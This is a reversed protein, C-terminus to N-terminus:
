CMKSLKQLDQSDGAAYQLCVETLLRCLQNAKSRAQKRAPHGETGRTSYSQSRRSKSDNLTEALDVAKAVTAELVRSINGDLNKQAQALASQLSSYGQDELGTQIQGAVRDDDIVRKLKIFKYVAFSAGALILTIVTVIITTLAMVSCAGAQSASVNIVTTLLGAAANLCAPRYSIDKTFFMNLRALIKCSFKTSSGRTFM